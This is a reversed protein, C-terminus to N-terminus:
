VRVRLELLNPPQFSLPESQLVADQSGCCVWGGNPLGDCVALKKIKAALLYHRGGNSYGGFWENHMRNSDSPNALDMGMGVVKM